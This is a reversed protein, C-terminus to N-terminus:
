QTAPTLPPLLILEMQPNRIEAPVYVAFNHARRVSEWAIGSHELSFYQYGLKIPIEQPPVPVHVLPLGPLAQRVLTDLHASSCAKILVPARTVVDAVPIEASVALYFRSNELLQNEIDLDTGYISDHLPRLPFAMFRSPIVTELLRHLTAELALFCTGLHEHDYIPLDQASIERSFTTLAGALSLLQLFLAEPHVQPTHLMQTLAPLHTNVTYLLWFEAIDSASFDVLSLNHQRRRGSHQASHTTLIEVLGRLLGSLRPSASIHVMPAIFDEDLRFQGSETRLLRAMPMVVMGEQADAGALIQLSKRALAVPKEIGSSNEDRLMLLDSFFRINGNARRSAINIGGPRVEPVALYLVVENESPAVCEEISRSPPPSDAEPFDFALGDPFLGSAHAVAVRGETFASVDLALSLFGWFRFKNAEALFRLSEAAYRDQAQLHQPSLFVGKSWVVPHLSRM